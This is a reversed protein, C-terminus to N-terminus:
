CLSNNDEFIDVVIVINLIGMKNARTLYISGFDIEEKNIM